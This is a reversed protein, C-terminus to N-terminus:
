FLSLFKVAIKFTLHGGLKKYYPKYQKSIEKLHMRYDKNEKKNKATVMRYYNATAYIWINIVNKIYENKEDNSLYILMELFDKKSDNFKSTSLSNPRIRYFYLPNDIFTFKLRNSLLNFFFVLDEGYNLKEDFRSNKLVSTKILKNWVAYFKGGFLMMELAKDAPREKIGYGRRIMTPMKVIKFQCATIDSKTKIATEYLIKLFDKEIIDDSDIFIFYDGSIHDLLFNRTKSISKENEKRFAKIRTDQKAFEEIIKYSQDISGDDVIVLEFDTFSQNLISKLCNRLYQQSNFVPVLVSIM